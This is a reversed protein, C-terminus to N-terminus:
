ADDLLDHGRMQRWRTYMEEGADGNVAGAGNEIAALKQETTLRSPVISALAREHAGANVDKDIARRVLESIPSGSARSRSRLQRYQEDSLTIQMRHSM